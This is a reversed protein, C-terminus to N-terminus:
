SAILLSITIVSLKRKGACPTIVTVRVAMRSGSATMVSVSCRVFVAKARALFEPLSFPKVVYDDAGLEFAQLKDAEASVGTLLIVPITSKQEKRLPRLLDFGSEGPMMIDLVILDFNEKELIVRAAAVNNATRVLYGVDSMAENLLDCLTVEDDVVLVRKAM